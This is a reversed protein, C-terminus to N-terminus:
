ASEAEDTETKNSGRILLFIVMLVLLGHTGFATTVVSNSLTTAFYYAIPVLILKDIGYACKDILWFLFVLMIPFILIGIWGFNIMADGLLGNNCNMEPRNAYLGGITKGLDTYPSKIGVLTRYYVPTNKQFFDLYYSNLVVPTFFVRRIFVVAINATHFLKNELIGVVCLASIIGLVYNFFRAQPRKIYLIYIGFIVVPLFLTSKLGDISFSLIQAVLFLIATPYRKKCLCYAIMCNNIARSWSFGYLIITPFHYERAQARLDYADYIDFNIRFHTYRLNIYLVLAFSVFAFVYIIRDDFTKEGMKLAFPRIHGKNAISHLFLIFAWFLTDLWVFTSSFAGASIMTASPFVVIIVLFRVIHDSLRNRQDSNEFLKRSLVVYLVTIIWSVICTGVSWNNIYGGYSYIKSLVGFYVIDLCVRYLLLYIVSNRSKKSENLNRDSNLSLHQM